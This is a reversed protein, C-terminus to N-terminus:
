FPLPPVMAALELEMTMATHKAQELTLDPDVGTTENAPASAGGTLLMSIALAGAAVPAHRHSM